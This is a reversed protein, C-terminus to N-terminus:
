RSTVPDTLRINIYGIADTVQSIIGPEIGRISKDASELFQKKAAKIVRPGYQKIIEINWLKHPMSILTTIYALTSLTM